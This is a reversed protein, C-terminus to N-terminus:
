RPKGARRWRWSRYPLLVRGLRSTEWRHVEGRLAEVEAEMELGRQRQVALEGQLRPVEEQLRAIEARLGVEDRVRWLTVDRLIAQTGIGMPKTTPKELLGVALAATEQAEEARTERLAAFQRWLDARDRWARTLRDKLAPAKIAGLDVLHQGVGAESMASAVKPDYALAVTPLAARIGLLVAHLRMGLVIDCGTLAAAREAPTGDVSVIEHHASKMLARIRSSVPVDGFPEGGRMFPVFLVRGGEQDLFADLAEAVQREWYRPEVGHTWNRLAVAVTPASGSERPPKEPLEEAPFDFVPDATVAISRTDAGIEALLDLSGKDRVTAVSAQEFAVRTLERGLESFLPGVGVAYIMLPKHALTALLPFAMYYPINTHTGRLLSEPDAGWYDHFVGGGGLIVLDAEEGAAVLGPLDLWSVSRVGHEASTQVPDGSAVIFAEGPAGERLRRLMAVLILEDGLNGFGFYGGILITKV